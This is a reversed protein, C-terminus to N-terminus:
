NQRAKRDSSVEALHKIKEIVQFAEAIADQSFVISEKAREKDEDLDWLKILLRHRAIYDEFLEIGKARKGKRILCDTELMAKTFAVPEEIQNLEEAVGNILYNLEQQNIELNM